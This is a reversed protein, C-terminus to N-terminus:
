RRRSIQLRSKESKELSKILQDIYEASTGRTRVRWEFAATPPTILRPILSDVDIEVREGIAVKCFNMNEGVRLEGWEDFEDAFVKCGTLSVDIIRFRGGVQPIVLELNKYHSTNFRDAGRRSKPAFEDPTECTFVHDGHERRYHPDIIKMRVVKRSGDPVNFRVMENKKLIEDPLDSPKNLVVFEPGASIVTYFTTDASEVELRVPTWEKDLRTLARM